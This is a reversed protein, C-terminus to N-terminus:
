RQVEDFWRDIYSKWRRVQAEDAFRESARAYCEEISAPVEIQAGGLRSVLRERENKRPYGGIIWATTWNGARMRVADLISDRLSFVIPKLEEPHDYRPSDSVAQWLNDMDCVLDGALMQQRVYTTKGSLPAGWIVYVSRTRSLTRHMFNHCQWCLIEINKENLAIEPDNLSKDDLEIMHHGILKSTDDAFSQGCRACIGHRQIILVQRLDMWRKSAYFRQLEISRAM